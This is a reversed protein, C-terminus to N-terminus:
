KSLKELLFLEKINLTTEPMKYDFNIDSNPYSSSTHTSLNLSDIRASDDNKKSNNHDSISFSM